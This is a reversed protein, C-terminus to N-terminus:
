GPGAAELVATYSVGLANALRELNRQIPRSHGHVWRSVTAETTGMTRALDASRLGLERQRSLIL